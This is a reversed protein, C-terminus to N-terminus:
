MHETLVMKSDKLITWCLYQFKAMEKCLPILITVTTSGHRDCENKLLGDRAKLACYMPTDKKVTEYKEGEFHPKFKEAVIEVVVSM